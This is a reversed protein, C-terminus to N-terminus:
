RVWFCSRQSSDYNKEGIWVVVSKNIDNGDTNNSRRMIVLINFLLFYWEQFLWQRRCYMLQNIRYRIGHVDLGFLGDKYDQYKLLLNSAVHSAFIYCIWNCAIFTSCHANCHTSNLCIQSSLLPDEGRRTQENNCSHKVHRTATKKEIKDVIM